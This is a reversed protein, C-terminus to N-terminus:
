QGVWEGNEAYNLSRPYGHERWIYDFVPRLARAVPQQNELAIEAPVEIIPPRMERGQFARGGFMLRPSVHLISKNVNIAAAAVHWPGASGLARLCKLYKYLGQIVNREFFVSAINVVGEPVRQGTLMFYHGKISIVDHSAANISGDPMMETASDVGSNKDSAFTIFRDGAIQHSWGSEGFPQLNVALVQQNQPEFIPLPVQASTPACSLVFLGQKFVLKHFNGSTVRAILEDLNKECRERPSEVPAKPAAKQLSEVLSALLNNQAVSGSLTAMMTELADLRQETTGKKRRPPLKAIAELADEIQKILLKKAEARAGEEIGAEVEYDLPWRRNKLDFPLNDQAGTATNLVIVIREPGLESLAYGLEIMVNPNPVIENQSTKAVFSVDAMFADAKRIKDLITNAIDPIGPIDKTDKDLRPSADVKGNKKLNKLATEIAAEIFNRNDRSNLDSQWAYFVTFEDM